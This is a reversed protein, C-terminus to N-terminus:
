VGAQHKEIVYILAATKLMLTNGDPQPSYNVAQTTQSNGYPGLLELLHLGNKVTTKTPPSFHRTPVSDGWNNPAKMQNRKMYIYIKPLYKIYIKTGYPKEFPMQYWNDRRIDGGKVKERFM